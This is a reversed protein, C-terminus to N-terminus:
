LVNHERAYNLLGIVTKAGTKRIINKRHTEVTHESLFLERSIEASTMENAILKIIEIERPTLQSNKRGEKKQQNFRTYSGALMQQIYQRGAMVHEIAEFLEPQKVNKLLYGLAGAELLSSVHQMDDHMSLVIIKTQPFKQMINKTLSLGSVEGMSIDTLLLDPQLKQVLDEAATASSAKGVVQLNPSDNLISEIGDMLIDHDDALVITIKEM